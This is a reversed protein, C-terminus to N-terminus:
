LDGDRFNKSRIKGQDLTTFLNDAAEEENFIPFIACVAEDGESYDGNLSEYNDDSIIKFGKKYNEIMTAVFKKDIDDEHLPKETPKETEM